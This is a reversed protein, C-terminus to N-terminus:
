MECVRLEFKLHKKDVLIKFLHFLINLNCFQVEFVVNKFNYEM